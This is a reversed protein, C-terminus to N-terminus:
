KQTAAAGTHYPKLVDVWLSRAMELDHANKKRDFVETSAKGKSYDRYGHELKYYLDTIGVDLRSVCEETKAGRKWYGGAIVIIQNTLNPRFGGYAYDISSRKGGADYSDFERLMGDKGRNPLEAVGSTLIGAGQIGKGDKLGANVKAGYTNVTLRYYYELPDSLDQEKYRYNKIAAAIKQGDPAESDPHTQKWTFTELTNTLDADKLEAVFAEHDYSDLIRHAEAAGYYVSGVLMMGVLGERYNPNWDRNMNGDGTLSTPKEGTAYRADSTAYASAVLAAKMLLNIKAREESTFQDWVRPTLRALTFAGTIHREHQSWYDGAALIANKGKLSYRIQEMLRADTSANGSWSATALVIAAGRKGAIMSVGKPMIRYSRFLPAAIAEEVTKQPVPPLKVEHRTDAARVGAAMGLLSVVVVAQIVQRRM